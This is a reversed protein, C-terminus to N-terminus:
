TELRQLWLSGGSNINFRPLTKEILEPHIKAVYDNFMLVRWKENNQLFARVMHVENWSRNDDVVWQRPYEFPWFMDHIHVLVGPKLVPLVENIEFCVDSGSKAIHTSDILLIDGANLERFVDLAVQQVGSEYLTYKKKTNGILSMLLKPFPEIFTLRCNGKLHLDITDLICASSWGSGVEIIHKPKHKRIMAYLIAADGYGYSNNIFGYRLRDKPAEAFPMEEMFPLLAMWTEQITSASILVDPLSAPWAKEELAKLYEDALKPDVIPSYFHGPPVFLKVDTLERFEDCELFAKSIEAASQGSRMQEVLYAIGLHDGQRRLVGLYLNEVFQKAATEDFRANIHQPADNKLIM